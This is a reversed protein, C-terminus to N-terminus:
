IFILNRTTYNRLNDVQKKVTHEFIKKLYKIKLYKYQM